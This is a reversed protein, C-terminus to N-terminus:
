SCLFSKDVDLATGYWTQLCGEVGRRRRCLLLPAGVQESGREEARAPVLPRESPLLGPLDKEPPPPLIVERRRGM